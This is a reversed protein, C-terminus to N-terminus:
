AEPLEACFNDSVAIPKQYGGTVNDGRGMRTVDPESNVAPFHSQITGVGVRWARVGGRAVVAFSM